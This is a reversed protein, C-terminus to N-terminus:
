GAFASRTHHHEHKVKWAISHSLTISAALRRMWDFTFPLDHKGSGHLFTPWLSRAPQRGRIRIESEAVQCDRPIRSM